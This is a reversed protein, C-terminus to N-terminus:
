GKLLLNIGIALGMGLFGALFANRYNYKKM